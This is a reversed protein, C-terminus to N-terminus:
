GEAPSLQSRETEGEGAEAREEEATEEETAEARAGEMEEEVKEVAVAPCAGPLGAVTPTRPSAVEGPGAGAVAQGKVM